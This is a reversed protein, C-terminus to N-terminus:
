EDNLGCPQQLIPFLRPEFPCRGKAPAQPRGGTEKEGAGAPRLSVKCCGQPERLLSEHEAPLDTIMSTSSHLPSRLDIPMAWIVWFPTSRCPVCVWCGPTYPRPRPFADDLLHCPM